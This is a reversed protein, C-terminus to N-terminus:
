PLFSEVASPLPPSLSIAREPRSWKLRLTKRYPIEIYKYLLISIALSLATCVFFNLASGQKMLHNELNYGDVNWV